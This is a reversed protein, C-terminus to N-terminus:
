QTIKNKIYTTHLSNIYRKPSFDLPLSWKSSQVYVPHYRWAFATTTPAKNLGEWFSGQKPSNTLMQLTRLKKCERLKHVELTKISSKYCQSQVKFLSTIQKRVFSWSASSDVSLAPQLLSQFYITKFLFKMRLLLLCRLRPPIKSTFFFDALFSSPQKSYDNDTQRSNAQEM